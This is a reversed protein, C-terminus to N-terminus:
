CRHIFLWSPDLDRVFVVRTPQLTGNVLVKGTCDELIKRIVCTKGSNKPAGLIVNSYLNSLQYGGLMNENQMPLPISKVRQKKIKHLRFWM